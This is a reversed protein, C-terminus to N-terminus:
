PVKKRTMPCPNNPPVSIDENHTIAIYAVFPTDPSKKVM